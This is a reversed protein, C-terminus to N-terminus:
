SDRGGSGPTTWPIPQAMWWSSPAVTLPRGATRLRSLQTRRALRMGTRM